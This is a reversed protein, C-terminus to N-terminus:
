RGVRTSYLGYLSCVLGLVVVVKAIRVVADPNAEQGFYFWVMPTLFFLAGAFGVMLGGQMPNFIQLTYIIALLTVAPALPSDSFLALRRRAIVIVFALIAITPTILHIPEFQSYEVLLYQGRRLVGRFPEFIAMALMGAELSIVLPVLLVTTISGLAFYRLTGGGVVIAWSGLIAFLQSILFM